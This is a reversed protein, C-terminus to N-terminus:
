ALCFRFALVTLLRVCPLCSLSVDIKMEATADWVVIEKSDGGVTFTGASQSWDMVLGPGRKVIILSPMARWAALLQPKPSSLAPAPPSIDLPDQNPRWIRIIGDATFSTQTCNVLPSFSPFSMCSGAAVLGDTDDNIFKM